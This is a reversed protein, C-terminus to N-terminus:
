LGLNALFPVSAAPLQVGLGAGFLVFTGISGVLAVIVATVWGVDGTRKLHFMLFAFVTLQFGLLDMLLGLVVLSVLISIVHGRGSSGDGTRTAPAESPEGDTDAIDQAPAATAPTASRAARLREQVFWTLALLLMATGLVFPLFGPGPGLNGWLDLALSSYAVYAGILALAGQALLAGRAQTASPGPPGTPGPSPRPPDAPPAPNQEHM